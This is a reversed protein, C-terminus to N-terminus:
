PKYHEANLRITVTILKIIVVPIYKGRKQM